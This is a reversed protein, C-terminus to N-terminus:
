HLSCSTSAGDLLHVGECCLWARCYTFRRSCVGVFRYVGRSPVSLAAASCGARVDVLLVANSEGVVMYLVM